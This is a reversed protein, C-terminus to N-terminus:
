ISQIKPGGKTVVAKAAMLGEFYYKLGIDDLEFNLLNKSHTYTYRHYIKQLHEELGPRFEGEPFPFCLYDSINYIGYGAIKDLTEQDRIFAIPRTSKSKISIGNKHGNNKNKGNGHETIELELGFVDSVLDTLTGHYFAFDNKSGHIVLSNNSSYSSQLFSSDLSLIGLLTILDKREEAM